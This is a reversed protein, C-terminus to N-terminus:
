AHPAAVEGAARLRQVVLRVYHGIEAKFAIRSQWIWTAVVGFLRIRSRVGQPSRGVATLHSVLVRWERARAPRVRAPDAHRQLEEVSRALNGAYQRRLLHFGPVNVFPGVLSLEAVLCRDAALFSQLPRVKVLATRRILGYQVSHTVSIPSLLCRFRVAPDMSDVPLLESTRGVESGLADILVTRPISLSAQPNRILGDVCVQVMEPTILDDAGMWRFYEGRSLDFVRRHNWAAGRNRSQRELRIRSDRRAFEECIQATADTSANDSIIIELRPYSQGLLSEICDSIFPEGNFVPLGISVL